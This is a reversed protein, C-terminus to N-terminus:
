TWYWVALNSSMGVGGRLVDVVGEPAVDAVLEIDDLAPPQVDGHDLPERGLRGRREELGGEPGLLGLHLRILREDRGLFGLGGRALVLILM